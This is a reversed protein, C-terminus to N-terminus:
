KMRKESPPDFTYDFLIFDQKYIDQLYKITRKGVSKFATVLARRRQRKSEESTLPNDRITKLIVDSLYKASKAKDETDIIDYPFTIDDKLYGQIQFSKWIRSAVEIKTMCRRSSYSLKLVTQVIGPITSGIRHDHLADHIVEYEQKAIGIEKLAYEVDTSFSEQKVLAFANVQCPNCLSIIPAWHRNLTRGQYAKQITDNLFEQFTIDNACTLADGPLNRQRKVIEIAGHYFLPLFMKDIFASFLRSYPDRSVLISQSKRREKSNFKATNQKKLKTHLAKRAMGFIKDSEDKGKRLITFVQTWFSCGAKPVKCYNFDYEPSYYYLLSSRGKYIQNRFLSNDACADRIHRIRRQQELKM